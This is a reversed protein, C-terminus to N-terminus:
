PFFKKSVFWLEAHSKYEAQMYIVKHPLTICIPQGSEAVTACSSIQHVSAFTISMVKRLDYSKYCENSDSDESSNSQSDYNDATEKSIILITKGSLIVFNTIWQGSIGYKM